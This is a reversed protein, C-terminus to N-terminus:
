TVQALPRVLTSNRPRCFNAYCVLLVPVVCDCVYPCVAVSICIFSCLFHLIGLLEVYLLCGFSFYYFIIIPYFGEGWSDGNWVCGGGEKMERRGEM